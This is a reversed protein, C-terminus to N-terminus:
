RARLQVLVLLGLAFSGIALGIPLLAAEVQDPVLDLQWFGILIAGCIGPVVGLMMRRPVSGSDWSWRSVILALGGILAAFSSVLIVQQM